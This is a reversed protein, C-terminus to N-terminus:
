GIGIFGKVKAMDAVVQKSKGEGPDQCCVPVLNGPHVKDIVPANVDAFRHQGIHFPAM